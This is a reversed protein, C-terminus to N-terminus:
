RRVVPTRGLGAVKTYSIFGSSGCPVAVVNCGLWGQSAKGACFRPPSFYSSLEFLDLFLPLAVKLKLTALCDLESLRQVHYRLALIRSACPVVRM